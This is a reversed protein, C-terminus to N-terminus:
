LSVNLRVLAPQTKVVPALDVWVPQPNFLIHGKENLVTFVYSELRRVGPCLSPHLAPWFCCQPSGVRCAAAEGRSTMKHKIPPLYEQSTGVTNKSGIHLCANLKSAMCPNHTAVTRDAGATYCCRKFFRHRHHFGFLRYAVTRITLETCLCLRGPMFAPDVGNSSRRFCSPTSRWIVCYVSLEDRKGTRTVHKWCVACLQSKKFKFIYSFFSCHKNKYRHSLDAFWTLGLPM